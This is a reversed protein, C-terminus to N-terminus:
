SAGILLLSRSPSPQCLWWIPGYMGTCSRSGTRFRCSGTGCPDTAFGRGGAARAHGASWGGVKPTAGTRRAQSECCTIASLLVQRAWCEGRHGQRLSRQQGSCVARSRQKHCAPPVVPSVVISTGPPSPEWSAQLTLGTRPSRGGRPCSGPPSAAAPHPSEFGVESDEGSTLLGYSWCGATGVFTRHSSMGATTPRIGAAQPGLV